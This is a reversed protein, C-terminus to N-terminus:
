SALVGDLAARLDDASVSGFWRQLEEGSPSLLVLIPQSRVGFQQTLSQNPGAERDIYVFDVRGWYEGELGHVIPRM